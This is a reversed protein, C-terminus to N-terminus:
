LDGHLIARDMVYAILRGFLIAGVWLAISLVALVRAGGDVAFAESRDSDNSHALAGANRLRRWLLAAVIGGLLVCAMKTLFTWNGILRSADAMFMLAGSIANIFFGIWAVTMLPAFAALPAIRSYGLVRLDLMVLVGVVTALGISHLSLMIPFGWDSTTIWDSVPLAEMWSLIGM